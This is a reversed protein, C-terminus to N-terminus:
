KQLVGIIRGGGSAQLLVCTKLADSGKDSPAPAPAYVKERGRWTGLKVLQRVVNRQVLTKGRNEGRKVVVQRESPDYRVLWVDAGGRPSAGAAVQVRGHRLWRMKPPRTTDHQAKRIMAQIKDADAGPAQSVGNIVIQPTYVENQSLRQMYARQRASFEPRAFTDSWGLYDWYDVSLTLALVGPKAALDDLLKDAEVCSSCGQSTYLEAVVPPRPAKAEAGGAWGALLLWALALAARRM